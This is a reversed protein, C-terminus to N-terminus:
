YWPLLSVGIGLYTSRHNFDILSEGYGDFLQIHARLYRQLPFSWDWQVAGHSRDGTRLSHRLLMSFEHEKRQHVVHLDARGLFDEAHPNDDKAASEGIRWWPRLMVVWGDREAAFTFKLRDWSRSLPLDRGNSQHVAGFALMRARWDGFLPEDIGFVLDIEPEYNTERFPRSANENYLQWRSSQTYSFWLDGRDGILGEAVKTKFSLQFKNEVQKLSQPADVVNAPNDSTPQRNPDPNWFVPLIYIPRHARLNFVGLKSDPDLEWRRDLMSDGSGAEPRAPEIRHVDDVHEQKAVRDPHSRRPSADRAVEDFCALRQADHEIRACRQLHSETDADAHAAAACAM